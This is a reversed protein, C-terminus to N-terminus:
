VKEEFNTTGLWKVFQKFSKNNKDGTIENLQYILDFPLHQALVRLAGIILLRLYRKEHGRCSDHSPPHPDVMNYEQALGDFM